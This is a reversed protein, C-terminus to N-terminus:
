GNDIIVCVMRGILIVKPGLRKHFYYLQLVRLYFIVLDVAYVYRAAVFDNDNILTFRLIVAIILLFYM